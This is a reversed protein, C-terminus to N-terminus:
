RCPPRYALIIGSEVADEWPLGSCVLKATTVLGRTSVPEKVTGADTRRILTALQVLGM